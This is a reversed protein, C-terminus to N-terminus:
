PSSLRRMLKFSLCESSAKELGGVTKKEGEEEEAM